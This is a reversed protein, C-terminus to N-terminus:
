YSFVCCSRNFPASVLISNAAGNPVLCLFSDISCQVPVRVGSLFVLCLHRRGCRIDANGAEVSRSLTVGCFHQRRFKAADYPHWERSSAISIRVAMHKLATAFDANGFFSLRDIGGAVFPALSSGLAHQNVLAVHVPITELGAGYDYAWGHGLPFIYEYAQTLASAAAVLVIVSFPKWRNVDRWVQILALQM